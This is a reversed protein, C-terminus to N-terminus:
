LRAQAQTVGALTAVLDAPAPLALNEDRLRAAAQQADDALVAGTGATIAAPSANDWAIAHGAGTRVLLSANAVHDAMGTIMVQPVGLAAATLMAGSGGHHILASCTPLLLHLPLLEVIRVNKPVPEPLLPRDAATLTVVIEVDADVAAVADLIRPVLFAEPGARLTTLTGWTVCIRPRSPPELLWSPADGPGNYPVFRGPIRNPIGPFQLSAPSMDVSGVPHEFQAAVGFSDFLRRLDGPWLPVPLGTGPFVRGQRFLAPGWLHHVMPAAAAAAALPAALVLPDAIVLDPRWSRALETVDAAMAEAVRVFSVLRGHLVRMMAPIIPNDPEDSLLAQLRDSLMDPSAPNTRPGDRAARAGAHMQYDMERADPGLDDGCGVCSVTLGSDRVARAAAPPSAVRVDNGAARFAWALPVLQFYHSPQSWALFLVKM